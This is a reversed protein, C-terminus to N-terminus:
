SPNLAAWAEDFLASRYCAITQERESTNAFDTVSCNSAFKQNERFRPGLRELVSWMGIESLHRGL